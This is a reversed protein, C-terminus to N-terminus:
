LLVAVLERCCGRFSSDSDHRIGLPRAFSAGTFRKESSEAPLFFLGKRELRQHKSGFPLGALSVGWAGRLASM